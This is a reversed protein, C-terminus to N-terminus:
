SVSFFFAMLCLADLESKDSESIKGNFSITKNEDSRGHACGFHVEQRTKSKIERMAIIYYHFDRILRMLIVYM